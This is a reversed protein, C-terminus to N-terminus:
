RRGREPLVLAVSDDDFGEVLGPDRHQPHRRGRLGGGLQALGGADVGGGEVGEEDLGVVARPGDGGPCHHDHVLGAHAGGAEVQLAEDVVGVALDRLDAIVALDGRDVEAAGVGDGVVEAGDGEAVVVAEAGGPQTVGGLQDAVAFGGGADGYECDSSPM